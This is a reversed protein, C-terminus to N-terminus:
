INKNFDPNFNEPIKGKIDKYYNHFFLFDKEIDGTPYFPKSIRYIKDGFDFTNFIIPVGAGMAIHYFGTKWKDTKSRTGEPSLALILEDSTKFLDVIAEVTNKSRTRNLPIGGLAKFIFGFPPKFLTHKAIFNAKVGTIIKMLLAVIFDYNSTHPAGIIIFKKLDEPYSGEIKWGMLNYLIFKAISKM